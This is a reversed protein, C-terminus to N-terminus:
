RRELREIKKELLEMKQLLRYMENSSDELKRTMERLKIKMESMESVQSIPNYSSESLPSGSSSAMNNLFDFGSNSSQEDQINSSSTKNITQSDRLDVMGGQFKFSPKSPPIKYGQTFDVTDSGRKKFRFIGM